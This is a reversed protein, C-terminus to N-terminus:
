RWIEALKEIDGGFTDHKLLAEALCTCAPSCLLSSVSMHSVEPFCFMPFSYSFGYVSNVCSLLVATEIPIIDDCLHYILQIFKMM